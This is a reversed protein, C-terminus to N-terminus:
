LLVTGNTVEEEDHSCIEHLLAAFALPMMSLSVVERVVADLYADATQLLLLLAPLLDTVLFVQVDLLQVFVQLFVLFVPIDEAVEL